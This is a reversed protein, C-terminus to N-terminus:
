ISNQWQKIKVINRHDDFLIGDIGLNILSKIQFLPDESLIFDWALAKIQLLHCVEIFKNTVLNSRLSILDPKINLKSPNNFKM